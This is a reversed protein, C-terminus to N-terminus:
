RDDTSIKVGGGRIPISGIKAGDTVMNQMFGVIAHLVYACWTRQRM